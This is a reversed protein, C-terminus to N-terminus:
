YTIVGYQCACECMLCSAAPGIVKLGSVIEIEQGAGVDAEVVVDADENLFGTLFYRINFNFLGKENV